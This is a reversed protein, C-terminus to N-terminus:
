SPSRARSPGGTSRGPSCGSWSGRPPRPCSPAGTTWSCSTSRSRTAPRPACRSVAPARAAPPRSGPWRCRSAELDVVNIASANLACQVARKLARAARSVDRSTTVVSGKRLTTAYASSLRVCLEPTIEVNVLGSVGRPGFLTRPGRSEWIVSTNVVAGAEITKFPYVKVGASLYAEPEIVCEDGVVAGEEIRASPMVDTNKGIVCGRLTVGQGVYVNNHVVARHLFAGEKVVVNAGLVTFERLEAGAEVKAYDGVCVPGSLVAEPDVEAGEAVWVGPSVEFGDIETDVRGSLVDAQAKLYSEHTGVDEWYGDAIYGFLPAGRKLLAPFVDGSWDVSEGLPVEALVEPEMVYIGTNVTDSFVQGWTPKELFRQIRGDEGVIIIGFELPNPVRTLGVTVLAGTEKHARVMATLDIDTLADGSIVLFPEDRLEDEANKVSGATGLPAEETAYQLRMGVDEGDGFYNRVLSALFQVTVVTEDFGHRKLLRLVHEMIPKNCVPLLPKPQNATMPRLRTGEGGAM